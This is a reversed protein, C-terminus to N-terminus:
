SITVQWDDSDCYVELEDATLGDNVHPKISNTVRTVRYQNNTKRTIPDYDVLYQDVNLTKTKM